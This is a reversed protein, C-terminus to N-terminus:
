KFIEVASDEDDSSDVTSDLRSDLSAQALRTENVSLSATTSSSSIATAAPLPPEAGTPHAEAERVEVERAQEAVRAKTEAKAAAATGIAAVQSARTAKGHQSTPPLTSLRKATAVAADRDQKRRSAAATVATQLLCSQGDTSAKSPKGNPGGAAEVAAIRRAVATAAELDASPGESEMAALHPSTSSAITVTQGSIRFSSSSIGLAMLLATVFAAGDTAPMQRLAAPLASQQQLRLLTSIKLEVVGQLKKTFRLAALSGAARVRSQVYRMDFQRPARRLNPKMCRIFSTECAGLKDLLSSLDAAFRGGVSAFSAGARSQQAAPQLSKQSFITAVLQNSSRTLWRPNLLSDNNTALWHGASYLVEDGM